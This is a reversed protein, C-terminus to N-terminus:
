RNPHKAFNLIEQKSLHLDFWVNISLFKSIMQPVTALCVWHKVNIKRSVYWRITSMERNKLLKASPNAVRFLLATWVLLEHM